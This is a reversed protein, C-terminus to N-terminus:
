INWADPILGDEIKNWRYKTAKTFSDFDKFFAHELVIVQLSEGRKVEAFLFEFYKRLHENDNEADIVLEDPDEESNYYPRSLQDFFVVGPVPLDNKAFFRHLAMVVAIHLSLYNEDSGINRMSVKRFDTEISVALDLPNFDVDFQKYREEFPLTKLVKTAIKSLQKRASFLAESLKDTGVENELESIETNLQSLLLKDIKSHEGVVYDLFFSIRGIVRAKQQEERSNNTDSNFSQSSLGNISQKIVRRSEKLEQLKTNIENIRKDVKPMEIELSNLEKSINEITSRIEEVKSESSQLSSNCLPCNHNTEDGQILDIAKLRSKYEKRGSSYASALEKIKMLKKFEFSFKELQTNIGNEKEYFDYLLENDPLEDNNVIGNEKITSLQYIINDLETSSEIRTLGAQRAEALLSNALVFDDNLLKNKKEQSEELRKLEQLKLKLETRKRVIDQDILGLYYPFADILSVRKGIEKIGRFLNTKSIITDDDQLLFPVCHRFSVRKSDIKKENIESNRIDEIGLLAEFKMISSDINLDAKLDSSKSPIYIDSGTRFFVDGSQKANRKPIRRCILCQTKNKQWLVGVWSTRERVMEPIHCESSGLCYDVIEIIASKGSHPRGTIINVAELEFELEKNSEQHSYLVIKKINWRKM